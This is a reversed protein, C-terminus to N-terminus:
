QATGTRGPSVRATNVYRGGPERRGSRIAPTTIAASAITPSHPQRRRLFDRAPPERVVFPPAAHALPDFEIARGIARPDVRHARVEVVEQEVVRGAFAFGGRGAQHEDNAVGVARRQDFRQDRMRSFFQLVEVIARTEDELSSQLEAGIGGLGVGDLHDTVAPVSAVIAQEIPQEDRAQELRATGLPEGEEGLVQVVLIESVEVRGERLGVEAMLREEEAERVLQEIGGVDTRAEVVEGAELGLDDSVRRNTRRQISVVGGALGNMRHM